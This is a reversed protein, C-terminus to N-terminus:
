VFQQPDLKIGPGMTASVAVSRIYRGRASAPRVRIIESMFTSINEKIQEKNFSAKGIPVHIIPASREFRYEIRGAKIEKVTKSVDETVTGSRPNPMLGAPGLIRGLRSIVRMMDPTAIAADFEMWGGQIREVLDEGGVVNAGAEQAERIREEGTTFVIVRKSTGTGYPLSVTGRVNQDAQRPDVGLRAALDITEDFKAKATQKLLDTAEDLSYLRNRDILKILERYRKGRKMKVEETNRKSL